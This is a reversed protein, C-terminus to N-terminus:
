RGENRPRRPRRPRIGTVKPLPRPPRPRDPRIGTTERPDKRHRIREPRIGQPIQLRRVGADELGPPRDPRAGTDVPRRAPRRGPHRAKEECGALAAGGGVLATLALAAQELFARREPEPQRDRVEAIMRTLAGRDVAALIAGETVTLEVGGARAAARAAALPDGLLADGFAPEAAALGLLEELAVPITAPGRDNGLPLGGVITTRAAPGRDKNQSM